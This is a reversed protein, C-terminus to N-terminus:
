NEGRIKNYANVIMGQIVNGSAPEAPIGGSGAFTTQGGSGGFTPNPAPDAPKTASEKKDKGKEIIIEYGKDTWVGIYNRAPGCDGLSSCYFQQHLITEESLPNDPDFPCNEVCKWDGGTLRKEYKVIVTQSAISCASAASQKWFEMGPAVKPVCKGLEEGQRGRINYLNTEANRFESLKRIAVDATGTEEDFPIWYCDGYYPNLCDESTNKWICESAGNAVCGAQKFNGGNYEISDEVCTEKRFDACPEVMEEGMFCIHRYHRSGVSDTYANGKEDYACWSEGNKYSKGNSTKRCNVDKCIYDGYQPSDGRDANGCITGAGIYECNGCTKASGSCSESASVIKEWYSPNNAKKADYINGKNGCTDIFYVKGDGECRTNTSKRCDTNLRESTCLYGEHFRINKSDTVTEDERLSNCEGKTLFRCTNAFEKEFVCAGLEQSTALAICSLEDAVDTRFDRGIGFQASMKNCRVLTTYAAETGLICCGLNCQPTSQCDADESWSGNGVRCAEEPTNEMCLGEDSEYCCGKKCYSTSECATPSKQFGDACEDKQSNQCYAGAKTKECCWSEEVVQAGVIGFVFIMVLIWIMAKKM